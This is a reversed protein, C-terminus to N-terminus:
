RVPSAAGAGQRVPLRIGGDGATHHDPGGQRHDGPEPGPCWCGDMDIVAEIQAQQTAHYVPLLPARGEPPMRGVEQRCLDYTEYLKQMWSM